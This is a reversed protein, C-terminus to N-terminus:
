PYNNLLSSIIKIIELKLNYFLLSEGHILKPYLFLILSKELYM